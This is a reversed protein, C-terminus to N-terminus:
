SWPTQPRPLLVEDEYIDVRENFFCILNKIKPNEPIPDPYSWVINKIIENGITLSWYSAIGKYPCRSQFDVPKLLDMRVDKRPLYYRIPLSTEFLLFPQRSEAVTSGGVEVRIHRSSEIVDVRKYPDRAHVFIEEEEEYWADMLNWEFSIHEQLAALEPPPEVYRWAANEATREGVKVTYYSRGSQQGGRTAPHLMAADVDDKPFYYTPLRGPGYQIHLLARKSDAVTAGGFKVRVWRPTPEVVPGRIFSAFLNENSLVVQTEGKRGIPINELVQHM